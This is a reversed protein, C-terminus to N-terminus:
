APPEVACGTNISTVVYSFGTPIQATDVTQPGWDLRMLSGGELAIWADGGWQDATIGEMSEVIDEREAQSLRYHYSEEGGMVDTNVLEYEYGQSTASEALGVLYYPEYQDILNGADGAQVQTFSGTGVDYWIDDGIRVYRFDPGDPQQHLADVAQQPSRCETGSLTREFGGDPGATIYRAEFDWSDHAQLEAIAAQIAATDITDGGAPPGSVGPPASSAAGTPASTATSGGCAIVISVLLVFGTVRALM